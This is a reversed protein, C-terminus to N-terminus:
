GLSFADPSQTQVGTEQLRKMLKKVELLLQHFTGSKLGIPPDLVGVSGSGLWVLWATFISTPWFFTLWLGLSSGLLYSELSGYVLGHGDPLWQDGPFIQISSKTALFGTIAKTVLLNGDGYNAHFVFVSITFLSVCVQFPSRRRWLLLQVKSLQESYGEPM